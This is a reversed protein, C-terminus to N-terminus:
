EAGEATVTEGEAPEAEAAIARAARAAEVCPRLSDVKKSWGPPFLDVVGEAWRLNRPCQMGDAM